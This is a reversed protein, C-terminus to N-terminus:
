GGTIRRISKMSFMCAYGSDTTLAQVSKWTMGTPQAEVCGGDCNSPPEEPYSDACTNQAADTTGCVRITGAAAALSALTSLSAVIAFIKM